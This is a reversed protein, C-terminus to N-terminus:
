DKQLAHQERVFQLAQWQPSGLTLGRYLNETLHWKEAETLGFCTGLVTKSLPVQLRAMNVVNYGFGLIAIREADKMLQQAQGLEESGDFNETIVKIGEAAVAVAEPKIAATYARTKAEEKSQWPLYGMRGHLHVFPLDNLASAVNEQSKGYLSCLRSFLFQELSRDYNFTILFVRNNKFERFPTGVTMKNLLWTYWDRNRSLLELSDERQILHYAIAVKGVHLFEPRHELFADVSSQGSNRLEIVFEDNEKQSVGFPQLDSGAQCIHAALEAGSPFGYPMSAGAGLIFVTPTKIM